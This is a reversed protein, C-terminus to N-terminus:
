PIIQLVRIKCRAPPRRGCSGLSRIVRGSEVSLPRQWAPGYNPNLTLVTNVNFLNYFDVSTARSGSNLVVRYIAFRLFDDQPVESM